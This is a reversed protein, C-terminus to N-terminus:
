EADAEMRDAVAEKFWGAAKALNDKTSAVKEKVVRRTESGARPACLLGLVTGIVAGM